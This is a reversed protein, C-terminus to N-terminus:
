LVEFLFYSVSILQGLVICMFKDCVCMVLLWLYWDRGVSVPPQGVNITFSVV